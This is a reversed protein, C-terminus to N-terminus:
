LYIPSNFLWGTALLQRSKDDATNYKRVRAHVSNAAQKLLGTSKDRYFEVCGKYRYDLDNKGKYERLDLDNNSQHYNLAYLNLYARIDQLGM